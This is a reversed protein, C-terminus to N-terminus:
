LMTAAAPQGVDTQAETLLDRVQAQILASLAAVEGRKDAQYAAYRTRLDLPAGIQVRCRRPGALKEHGYCERELRIITEAMREQTPHESVYGDYIAIFNTLRDLDRVLTMARAKQYERLRRDYPAASEAPTDNAVVDVAHLLVHLRELVTEGAPLAVGAATAVRGLVAEKVATLRPTFNEEPEAAENKPSPLRYERELARLMAAGVRRVRRHLEANPDPPTGTFAELNDLAQRMTPRMDTLYVYKLALPLVYLPADTGAKRLDDMAWYALQFTGSQFTMLSDNQSHVEGEPFIVLKAGPATLTERTARFSARDVTGRVVSYAGVRQILWGQFGRYPEFAEICALYRFDQRVQTSLHFLVAPDAHAPHNPTLLVREGELSRLTDLDAPDYDVERVDYLKRMLLPLTLRCFGQVWPIPKAPRFDDDAM